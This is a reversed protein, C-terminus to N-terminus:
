GDIDKVQPDLVILHQSSAANCAGACAAATHCAYTACFFSARVEDMVKAAQELLALM